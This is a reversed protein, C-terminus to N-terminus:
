AAWCLRFAWAGMTLLIFAASMSLWEAMPTRIGFCLLGAYATLGIGCAFIYLKLATQEIKLKRKTEM